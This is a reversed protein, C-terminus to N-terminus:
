ILNVTKHYNLISVLLQALELETILLVSKGALEYGKSSLKRLAAGKPSCQKISLELCFERCSHTQEM